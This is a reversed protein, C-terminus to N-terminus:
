VLVAALSEERFAVLHQAESPSALKKSASISKRYWLEAIAPTSRFSNGVTWYVFALDGRAQANTNDAAALTEAIALARRAYIQANKSDGANLMATGFLPGVVIQYVAFLSRQAPKSHPSKRALNEAIAISRRFNALSEEQSGLENLARGIRVYLRPLMQDHDDNGNADGGVVELAVRFDKLALDPERNNFEVEGLGMQNTALLNRRIPDNPKQRWFVRVVTLSHQYDDRAEKM